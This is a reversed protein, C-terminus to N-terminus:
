GSSDGAEFNIGAVTWRVLEAHSSLDDPTEVDIEDTEPCFWVENEEPFFHFGEHSFIDPDHFSYGADDSFPYLDYSPVHGSVQGMTSLLDAPESVPRFARPRTYGGRVDCGGHIHLFIHEGRWLPDRERSYVTFQIVQDLVNEMNYTNITINYLIEDRDEQFRFQRSARMNSGEFNKVFEQLERDVEEDYELYDTLFLYLPVSFEVENMGWVKMKPGENEFDREQNRQWHRGYAGGSDLFHVGTPERLMEALVEKTSKM